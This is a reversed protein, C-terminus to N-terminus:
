SQLGPCRDKTEPRNHGYPLGAATWRVSRQCCPCPGVPPPKPPTWLTQTVAHAFEEVGLVRPGDQVGVTGSLGWLVCSSSRGDVYSAYGFRRGEATWLRICLSHIDRDKIIDHALAHTVKVRRGYEDAVTALRRAALPLIERPLEEIRWDTLGYARSLIRIKIPATAPEVGKIHPFPASRLAQEITAQHMLTLAGAATTLEVNARRCPDCHPEAYGVAALTAAGCSVCESPGLGARQPITPPDHPQMPMM